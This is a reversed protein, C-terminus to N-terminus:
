AEAEHDNSSKRSDTQEKTEVTVNQTSTFNAPSSNAEQKESLGDEVSLQLPDSETTEVASSTQGGNNRLQDSNGLQFNSFYSTEAEIQIQISFFDHM